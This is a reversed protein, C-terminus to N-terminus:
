PSSTNLFFCLSVREEGGVYSKGNWGRFAGCNNNGTNSIVSAGFRRHKNPGNIVPAFQFKSFLCFLFLSLPRNQFIFNFLLDLWNISYNRQKTEGLLRLTGPSGAEAMRNPSCYFHNGGTGQGDRRDRRYAPSTQSAGPCPNHKVAAKHPM